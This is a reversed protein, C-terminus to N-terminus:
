LKDLKGKTEVIITDIERLETQKFNIRSPLEELQKQLLLLNSNLKELSKELKEILSQSDQINEKNGRIKKIQVTINEIKWIIKSKKEEIGSPILTLNELVSEIKRKTSLLKWLIQRNKINELEQNALKDTNKPKKYIYIGEKDTYYYITVLKLHKSYAECWKLVYWYNGFANDIILYGWEELLQVAWDLMFDRWFPFTRHSSSSNEFVHRWYIINTAWGFHNLVGNIWYKPERSDIIWPIFPIDWMFLKTSEEDKVHLWIWLYNNNPLESKFLSIPACKWEYESEHIPLPWVELINLKDWLGNHNILHNLCFFAKENVSIDDSDPLWDNKNFIKIDWWVDEIGKSTNM